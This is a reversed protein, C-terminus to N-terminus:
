GMVYNWTIVILIGETIQPLIFEQTNDEILDKATIEVLSDGPNDSDIGGVYWVFLISNITVTNSRILSLNEQLIQLFDLISQM